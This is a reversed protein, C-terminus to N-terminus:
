PTSAIVSVPFEYSMFFWWNRTCRDNESIRAQTYCMAPHAVTFSRPSSLRTMGEDRVLWLGRVELIFHLFCPGRVQDDELVAIKVWISRNLGNSPERGGLLHALRVTSEIQAPFLKRNMRWYLREVPSPEQQSQLTTRIERVSDRCRVHHREEFYDRM